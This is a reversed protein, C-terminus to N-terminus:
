SGSKPGFALYICYAAIALEQVIRRGEKVRAEDLEENTM